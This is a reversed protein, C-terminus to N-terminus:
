KMYEEVLELCREETLNNFVITYELHEMTGGKYKQSAEKATQDRYTIWKRQEIRLQDMEETPLQEKLVGYIENLLGDLIDFIEGEANKMTITRDISPNNRIEDMEYKADKLKKLYAEKMSTTNITPFDDEKEPEDISIYVKETTDKNNGTDTTEPKTNHSKSVNMTADKNLTDENTKQISSNQSQSEKTFTSEESSYNGCAALIVFIITLMGTLFSRNHKM